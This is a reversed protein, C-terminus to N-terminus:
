AELEAGSLVKGVDGRVKGVDGRLRGARRGSMLHAPVGEEIGIIDAERIMVVLGYGPWEIEGRGQVGGQWEEGLNPSFLVRDGEKVEYPKVKGTKRDKGTGLAVVTGRLAARQANAPLHLGGMSIETPDDRVVLLRDGLVQAPQPPGSNGTEAATVTSTM